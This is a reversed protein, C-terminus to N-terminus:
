KTFQLAWDLLEASFAARCLEERSRINLVEERLIGGADRVEDGFSDLTASVAYVDTVGKISLVATRAINKALISEDPDAAVVVGSAFLETYDSLMRWVGGAGAPQSSDSYGMIYIRSVDVNPRKNIYDDILAKLRESMTSKSMEEPNEDWARGAPCQPVVISAKINNSSFYHWIRIVADQHIQSINDSGSAYQGHLVIILPYKGNTANQIACEQYNLTEGNISHSGAKFYDDVTTPLEPTDSNNQSCQVSFIAVILALACLHLKTKM